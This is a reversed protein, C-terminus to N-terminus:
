GRKGGSVCEGQGVVDRVDLAVAGVPRIEMVTESLEHEDCASPAVEDTGGCTWSRLVRVVWRCHLHLFCELPVAFICDRRVEEAFTKGTIDVQIDLVEWGGLFLPVDDAVSERGLAIIRLCVEVLSEHVHLAWLSAVGLLEEGDQPCLMILKLGDVDVNIVRIVLM